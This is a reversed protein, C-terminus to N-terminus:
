VCLKGKGNEDDRECNVDCVCVSKACTGASCNRIKLQVIFNLFMKDILLVENGKPILNKKLINYTQAVAM